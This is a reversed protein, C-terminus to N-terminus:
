PNITGSSNLLTNANELLYKQAAWQNQPAFLDINEQIPKQTGDENFLIAINLAVSALAEEEPTYKILLHGNQIDVKQIEYKYSIKM